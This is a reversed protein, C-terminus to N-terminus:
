EGGPRSVDPDARAATPLILASPPRRALLSSLKGREIVTLERDGDFFMVVSDLADSVDDYDLSVSVDTVPLSVTVGLTRGRQWAWACAIGDAPLERVLTPAGLAELADGLNAHGPALGAYREQTIPTASEVRAWRLQVCSTTVALLALLGLRPKM